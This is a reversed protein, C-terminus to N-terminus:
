RQPHGGCTPPTAPCAGAPSPRTEHRDGRRNDERHAPLVYQRHSSGRSRGAQRTRGQCAHGTRRSGPPVAERAPHGEPRSCPGPFRELGEPIERFRRSYRDSAFAPFSSSATQSVGKLPSASDQDLSRSIESRRSGARVRRSNRCAFRIRVDHAQPLIIFPRVQNRQNGPFHDTLQGVIMGVDRDRPRGIERASAM